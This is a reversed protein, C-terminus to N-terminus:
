SEMATTSGNEGRPSGQCGQCGELEWLTELGEPLCETAALMKAGLEAGLVTSVDGRGEETAISLSVM